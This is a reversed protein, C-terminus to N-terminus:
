LYVTLLLFPVFMEVALPSKNNTEGSTLAAIQGIMTHDGTRVVVLALNFPILL